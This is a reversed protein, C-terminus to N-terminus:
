RELGDPVAALVYRGKAQAHAARVWMPHSAPTVFTELPGLVGKRREDAYYENSECLARDLAADAPPHGAGERVYMAVARGAPAPGLMLDDHLRYGRDLLLGVVVDEPISSMSIKLFWATRSRFALRPTRRHFGTCEVIDHTRYRVLGIPTTVVLEYRRGTEACSAPVVNGPEPAAGEPLLEVVNADPHLPHGKNGDYLPVTMLGTETSSYPGDLLAMGGLRPELMPVSAAASAGTWCIVAAMSPWIERLGPSGGRFASRLRRLRRASVRLRPLPAPPNARGELYRWGRDIGAVVEDHFRAFYGATISMGLSADRAAAYVPAWEGALDPRSAVAWPIASLGQKWGTLRSAFLGSVYGVPIGAPSSELNGYSCMLLPKLPINPAARSLAHAFTLWATRSQRDFGGDLPFRKPRKASSGSSLAWTMIREGTTPSVTSGFAADFAPEYEAYETLPAEALPPAGAGGWRARWYSSHECKSRIRVWGERHARDPDASAAEFRRWFPRGALRLLASLGSTM